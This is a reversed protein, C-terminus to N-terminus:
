WSFAIFRTSDVAAVGDLPALADAITVLPSDFTYEPSM